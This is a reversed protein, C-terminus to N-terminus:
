NAGWGCSGAGRRTLCRTWRPCAGRRRRRMRQAHRAPSPERCLLVWPPSLSSLSPAPPHISPCFGALGTRNKRLAWRPGERSVPRVRDSCGRGRFRRAIFPPNVNRYLLLITTCIWPELNDSNESHSRRKTLIESPPAIDIPPDGASRDDPNPMGGGSGLGIWAAAFSRSPTAISYRQSITIGEAGATPGPRSAPGAPAPAPSSAIGRSRSLSAVAGLDGPGNSDWEPREGPPPSSGRRRGARVRAPSVPFWAPRREGTAGLIPGILRAMREPAALVTAKMAPENLWAAFALGDRRVNPGFRCMWGFGRPLREEPPVAAPTEPAPSNGAAGHHAGPSPASLRHAPPAMLREGAEIRRMLASLAHLKDSMWGRALGRVVPSLTWAAPVEVPADVPMLRAREGAPRAVRRVIAKVRDLLTVLFPASLM